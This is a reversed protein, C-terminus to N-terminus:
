DMAPIRKEAEQFHINKAIWNLVRKQDRPSLDDLSKTDGQTWPIGNLICSIPAMM